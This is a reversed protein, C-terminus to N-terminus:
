PWEGEEEDVLELGNMTDTNEVKSCAIFVKFCAM